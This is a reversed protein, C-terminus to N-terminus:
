KWDILSILGDSTVQKAQGTEYNYLWLNAQYLFALWQQGDGDPAPSWVTKQPDLGVMGEPPFISRQNSGDRDALFLQYRSSESQEPFIAQLYALRYTGDPQAPSVSPYSFMGTPQILDIEELSKGALASISFLPSEEPNAVSSVPLHNTFFITNNDPNWDIGPV